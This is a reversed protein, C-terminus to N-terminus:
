GSVRSREGGREKGERGGGLPVKKPLQSLIGGRKGEEIDSPSQIEREEGKKIREPYLFATKGESSSPFKEKRKREKRL